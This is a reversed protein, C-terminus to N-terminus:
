PTEKTATIGTVSEAPLVARLLAVVADKSIPVAGPATTLTVRYATVLSESPDRWMPGGPIAQEAGTAGHLPRFEPDMSGGELGIFTRAERETNHHDIQVYDERAVVTAWAGSTRKGKAYRRDFWVLASSAGDLIPSRVDNLASM